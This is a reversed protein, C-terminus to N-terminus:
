INKLMRKMNRKMYKRDLWARHTDRNERQRKASSKRATDLVKGERASAQEIWNEMAERLRDAAQWDASAHSTSTKVIAPVGLAIHHTMLNSGLAPLAQSVQTM